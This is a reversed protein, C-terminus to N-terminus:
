NTIKLHNAAKTNNSLFHEIAEPESVGVSLQGCFTDMNMDVSGSNTFMKLPGPISEWGPPISEQAVKFKLSQINTSKRQM